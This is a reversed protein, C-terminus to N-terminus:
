LKFLPRGNEMDYQVLVCAAEFVVKHKAVGHRFRDDLAKFSKIRKNFTEHRAGVRTKFAKVEDSDCVNYGSLIHKPAGQYGKDGYVLKGDPILSLLSVRPDDDDEELDELVFEGDDDDSDDDLRAQGVMFALNDDDGDDEANDEDENNDEHEDEMADYIEPSAEGNFIALDKTGGKFPGNIWVCQEEHIALGIEYVLAAKKLKYSVWLRSPNRRQENIECHVGDVSLIFIEDFEEFNPWVIKQSKLAQIKCVYMWVKVRVTKESLNFYGAMNETVTYTKMWHLALLFYNHDPYDMRAADIQTTQFDDFVASCAAPGVGYAAHFRRLKPKLASQPRPSHGVLELGVRLFDDHSLHILVM